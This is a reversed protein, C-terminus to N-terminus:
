HTLEEVSIELKSKNIKFTIKVPQNQYGKQAYASSISNLMLDIDAGSLLHNKFPLIIEKIQDETILTAGKVVIEKIFVKKAKEVEVRLLKDKEIDQQMKDIEGMSPQSFSFSFSGFIFFLVVFATKKM